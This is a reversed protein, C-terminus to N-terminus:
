WGLGRKALEQELMDFDWTAFIGAMSGFRLKAGKADFSMRRVPMESPNELTGLLQWDRTSWVGIRGVSCAAVLLPKQPHFAAQAAFNSFGVTDLVRECKWTATSWIEFRNCAVLLWRGDPSFQVGRVTRTDAYLRERTDVSLVNFGEEGGIAIFRGDPSLDIWAGAPIGLSMELQIREPQESDPQRLVCANRNQARDIALLQGSHDVAIANHNGPPSLLTGPGPGNEGMAWRKVGGEGAGYLVRGDPSFCFANWLGGAFTARMQRCEHDWLWAHRADGLATWRGDPSAAIGLVGGRTDTSDYGCYAGPQYHMLAPTGDIVVPGFSEDSQWQFSHSYYHSGKSQLLTRGSVLCFASVLEDESVIALRQGDQSFAARWVQTGPGRLIHRMDGNTADWIYVPGDREAGLLWRGDPSWTMCWVCNGLTAALERVLTGDDCRYIRVSYPVNSDNLYFSPAVACFQGDPSFKMALAVNPYEVSMTIRDDAASRIKALRGGRQNSVHWAFWRGDASIDQAVGDGAFAVSPQSPQSGEILWLKWCKDGEQTALWRGDASLLQPMGSERAASILVGDDARTVKWIGQRPDRWALYKWHPSATAFEMGPSPPAPMQSKSMSPFALACMAESRRRLHFSDSEKPSGAERVLELVRDRFGPPRALRLSTAQSLLEERRHLEADEHARQIRWAAINSSIGLTALLLIVSGALLASAPHRRTWRWSTEAWNLPRAVTPKGDLFRRLDEALQGATAYRDEPDKEIARACIDVLDSPPRPQMESLPEPNGEAIQHFLAPLSKARHPQHGSLLEYLVVGLGYVDSATTAKEIGGTAVEPSLYHPTGLIDSLQTQSSDLAELGKAIGFDGLFVRGEDDFLVNGPKIDRHLVGRRHAFDLAEALTAILEAIRRWQGRYIGIQEALSGSTALKMTFWPLGDNEGVEYVPLIAPHELAVMTQAERRFRSCIMQNRAWKPQLIKVAIQRKPKLQQGRYVIGVGGRAIEGRMMVGPLGFRSLEEGGEVIGLELLFCAPCVGESHESPIRNHCNPCITPM